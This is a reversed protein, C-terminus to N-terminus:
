IREKKTISSWKMFKMMSLITLVIDQGIGRIKIVVFDQQKPYFVESDVKTWKM